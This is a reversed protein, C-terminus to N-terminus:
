VSNEVLWKEVEWAGGWEVITCKLGATQGEKLIRRSLERYSRVLAVDQRNMENRILSQGLTTSAVQSSESACGSCLASTMAVQIAWTLLPILRSRKDLQSATVLTSSATLHRGAEM